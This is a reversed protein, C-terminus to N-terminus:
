VKIKQGESKLSEMCFTAILKPKKNSYPAKIVNTNYLMTLNSGYVLVPKSTLINWRHNKNSCTAIIRSILARDTTFDNSADSGPCVITDTEYEM